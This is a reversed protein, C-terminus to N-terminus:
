PKLFSLVEDARGVTDGYGLDILDGVYAPEFMLYSELRGDRHWAGVTKMLLRIPRPLDDAHVRALERLDKSPALLLSSIPRLM